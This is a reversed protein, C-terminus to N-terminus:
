SEAKATIWNYSTINIETPPLKFPQLGRMSSKKIRYEQLTVVVIAQMTIILLPFFHPNLLM